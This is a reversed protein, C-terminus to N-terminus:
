KTMYYGNVYASSHKAKRLHYKGRRVISRHGRAHRPSDHMDERRSRAGVYSSRRRGKKTTVSTMASGSHASGRGPLAPHPHGCNACLFRSEAGIRPHPDGGEALHWFEMIGLNTKSQDNSLQFSRIANISQDYIADWVTGQQLVRHKIYM